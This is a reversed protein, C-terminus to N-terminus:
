RLRNVSRYGSAVAGAFEGLQLIHQMLELAVKRFQLTRFLLTDFELSRLNAVISDIRHMAGTLDIYDCRQKRRSWLCAASKESFTGPFGITFIPMPPQITGRM